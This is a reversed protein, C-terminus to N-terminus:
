AAKQDGESIILPKSPYMLAALTGPPFYSQNAVGKPSEYKVLKGDKAVRPRDPKLRSYGLPLGKSDRFPIVLCDGLQGQYAKWRLIEKVKKPDALSWFGCARITSDNLGSKRLDALHGPFLITELPVENAGPVAGVSRSTPGNNKANLSTVM